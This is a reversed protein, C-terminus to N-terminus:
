LFYLTQRDSKARDPNKFLPEPSYRGVGSALLTERLKRVIWPANRIKERSETTTKRNALRPNDGTPM